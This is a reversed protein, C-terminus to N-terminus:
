ECDNQGQQPSGSDDMIWVDADADEDLNAFACVQFGDELTKGVGSMGSCPNEVQANSCEAHTCALCEKGMCYTYRTGPEPQFGLEKFSKGYRDKEAGFSRQAAFIAKLHTKAESQKARCQFKLFNPIAVAATTGLMAMGAGGGSEVVERLEAVAGSPVTFGADLRGAARQVQVSQRMAQWHGHPDLIKEVTLQTTTQKLEPPAEPERSVDRQMDALARALVRRQDARHQDYERLWQQVTQEVKAITVPSDSLLTATVTLTDKGRVRLEMTGQQGLQLRGQVLLPQGSAQIAVANAPTSSLANMAEQAGLLFYGPGARLCFPAGPDGKEVLCADGGRVELTIDRGHEEALVARGLALLGTLLEQNQSQSHDVAFVMVGRLAPFDGGVEPITLAYGRVRPWQAWERLASTAVILRGMFQRLEEDDPETMAFPLVANLLLATQRLADERSTLGADELAAVDVVVGSFDPRSLVRDLMLRAEPTVPGRPSQEKQTTACGAAFLLAFPLLSRANM